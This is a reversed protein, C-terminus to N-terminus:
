INTDIGTYSKSLRFTKLEKKLGIEKVYKIFEKPLPSPGVWVSKQVMIYGFKILHRRFWNREKRKSSPIDYMVILNKPSDKKFPSIFSTNYFKKKRGEIKIRKNGGLLFIPIGFSNTKVGKYNFVKQTYVM